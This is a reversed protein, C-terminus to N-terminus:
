GPKTGDAIRTALAAFDAGAGIVGKERARQLWPDDPPPGTTARDQPPTALVGGPASAQSQPDPAGRTPRPVSEPAYTPRKAGAWFERVTRTVVRPMEGLLHYSQYAHGLKGRVAGAKDRPAQWRDIVRSAELADLLTQVTGATLGLRGGLGGLRGAKKHGHWLRKSHAVTNRQAEALCAYLALVSRARPSELHRYVGGQPHLKVAVAPAPRDRRPLTEASRECAAEVLGAILPGSTRADSDRRLFELFEGAPADGVGRVL